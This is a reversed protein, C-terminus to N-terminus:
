ASRPEVTFLRIGPHNAAAVAAAGDRSNPLGWQMNSQGGCLWVDGVLVDRLVIRERGEVVVESATGAPPPTLRIEWRGDAGAVGTATEDGLTVRVTDGPASWGWFVNPKDRQLVMHDGFMPSLLPRPANTEQACGLSWCAAFLVLALFRFPRM